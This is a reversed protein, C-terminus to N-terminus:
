GEKINRHLIFCFNSILVTHLFPFYLNIEMDFMLTLGMDLTVYPVSRYLFMRVLYCPSVTTHVAMCFISILALVCGSIFLFKCSSLTLWYNNVCSVAVSLIVISVIEICGANQCLCVELLFTKSVPAKLSRLIM